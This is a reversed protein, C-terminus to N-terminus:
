LPIRCNGHSNGQGFNNIEMLYERIGPQSSDPGWMAKLKKQTKKGTKSKAGFIGKSKTGILSTKMRSTLNTQKHGKRPRANGRTGNGSGSDKRNGNWNGNGYPNGNMRMTHSLDSVHSKTMYFDITGKSRKQEDNGMTSDMDEVTQNRGGNHDEVMSGAVDLVM